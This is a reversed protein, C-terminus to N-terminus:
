ISGAPLLRGRIFSLWYVFKRDIGNAYEHGIRPHNKMYINM